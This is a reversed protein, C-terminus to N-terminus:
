RIALLCINKKLAFLRPASVENLLVSARVRPHTVDAGFRDDEIPLILEVGMDKMFVAFRYWHFAKWYHLGGAFLGSRDLYSRAWKAFKWGFISSVYPVRRYHIVNCLMNM